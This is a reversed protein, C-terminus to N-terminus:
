LATYGGDVTVATATIYSSASSLLFCIADAIEGPGPAVSNVRIGDPAFEHALARTRIALGAKAVAYHPTAHPNVLAVVRSAEISAVNVIAPRPSARLHPACARAVNFAGVLNVSLLRSWDQTTVGVVHASHYVGACHAVCSRTGDAALRAIVDATRHEDATAAHARPRLDAAARQATEGDRDLLLVRLGAAWLSEATFKGIGLGAGILLATDGEYMWGTLTV